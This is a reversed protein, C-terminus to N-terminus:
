KSVDEMEPWFFPKNNRYMIKAEERPIIMRSDEQAFWVLINNTNVEDIRGVWTIDWVIFDGDIPELLKESDPHIVATCHKVFSLINEEGMLEDGKSVWSGNVMLTESKGVIFRMGFEKAMYATQIPCDYYYKM